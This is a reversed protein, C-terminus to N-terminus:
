AEGDLDDVLAAQGALHALAMGRRMAEALDTSNLELRELRTLADPLSSAGELARRVENTLGHLAGAADRELRDTLRAVMEDDEIVGRAHLTRGLKKPATPPM